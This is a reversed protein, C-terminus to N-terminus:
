FSRGVLLFVPEVWNSREADAADSALDSDLGDVPGARRGAPGAYEDFGVDGIDWVGEVKFEM